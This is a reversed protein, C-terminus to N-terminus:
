KKFVNEPNNRIYKAIKLWTLGCDNMEVLSHHSYGNIAANNKLAGNHSNLGLIKVDNNCLTDIYEGSFLNNDLWKVNENIVLCAQGLLCCRIEGDSLKMGLSHKMQREPHAEMESIWREQIKTLVKGQKVPTLINIIKKFINM